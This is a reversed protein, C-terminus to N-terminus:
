PHRFDRKALTNQKNETLDWRYPNKYALFNAVVVIGFFALTMVLANSGYRAQRGTLATRVKEPDLVAFIALGVIICALSIQLYLNWERQVIYLGLSVLVALLSLYLGLPAFRRLKRNM